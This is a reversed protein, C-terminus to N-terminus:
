DDPLSVGMRGLIKLTLDKFDARANQAATFHSGTAGDAATLRFIPKRAQQAMPVLSRYHKAMALYNPDKEPRMDRPFSGMEEMAIRKYNLVFRQYDRPIRRVWKEYAQVPRDLRISGPQNVVYGIARMEGEPIDFDIEDSHRRTLESWEERWKAVTPGLNRLGQLSYIDAGLPAVFFNSAVLASHNIAGLNPGVDALVIDAKMEEAGWQMVRWFASLIRLARKAKERDMAESQAASLHREFGSLSLDGPLLALNERVHWLLPREADGVDTLPRVCRFITDPKPSESEWLIEAENESLFSATLNAQPDLDCALARLGLEEMMWAIHYVLSTKGVGGKNNFFTLIPIKGSM